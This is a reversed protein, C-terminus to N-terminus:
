NVSIAFAGEVVILSSVDTQAVVQRRGSSWLVELREVTGSVGLGILVRADNSSLYSGSPRVEFDRVHGDVTARVRAGIASRNSTRGVLRLQLSRGGIENRLLSPQDDINVIAVDLDGDDDIDGFAAGRSSAEALMGDGEAWPLEVFKGDRNWFLQNRQRYSTKQGSRDAQPYVHGNAAFLDALGDNDFDAARTAWGLYFWSPVRLNVATTVDAFLGAGANRYVTNTDHSFNTVMIDLRGDGDIDALDVGMGAQALGDASYAVGAFLAVEEFNGEGDNNFLFNPVSDNAVYLDSDGDGDYDGSVVGLGYAKTTDYLGADRTAETFAGEGNNLYFVDSVGELGSPGCFVPLGFWVCSPREGPLPLDAIVSQSYNAVYLDLDGDADADFFLTGTGFGEHAVGSGQGVEEFTGDGRNRFLTNSGLHSVYLDSHGDNDYDGVACGLGWGDDGVGAADTVDVFRWGGENRYLRNPQAPVITGAEIRSGNVFYIDLDGDEDYDFLAAGSGLSSVIFRKEPEGSENRYDIGTDALMERFRIPTECRAAGPLLSCSLVLIAYRSVRALPLLVHHM